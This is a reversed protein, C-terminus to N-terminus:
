LEASLAVDLGQAARLLEAAKRIRRVGQPYIPVRPFLLPDFGVVVGEVWWLRSAPVPSKLRRPVACPRRPWPDRGPRNARSGYKGFTAGATCTEVGPAKERGGPAACFTFQGSPALSAGRSPERKPAALFLIPACGRPSGAARGTRRSLGSVSTALLRTGWGDNAACIGREGPPLSKKM